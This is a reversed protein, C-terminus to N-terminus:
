KIEISLFALSRLYNETFFKTFLMINSIYIYINPHALFVRYKKEKAFVQFYRLVHRFLFETWLVARLKLKLLNRM